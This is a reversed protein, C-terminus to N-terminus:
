NPIILDLFITRTVTGDSASIGLTYNGAPVSLNKLYLKAHETEDKLDIYKSSMNASIKFFGGAQDTSSSANLYVRQSDDSTSTKSVEIDVIRSSSDNGLVIRNMTSQIAFPPQISADVVGFKDTNLESFWLKNKNTPDISLNLAYTVYGGDPRSPIDYETLSNAVLDLLAIKNGEHENFWIKTGNDVARMWFPLTSVGYPSQPTPFRYITQKDINYKTIFNTEHETTWITNKSVFIDTPLYLSTKNAPPIDFEKVINTVCGNKSLIKFKVIKQNLIETIWLNNNDVFLGTPQTGNTLHFETVKYPSNTNRTKQIVGVTDGGLTTFWINNDRDLKMQFPSSRIGGLPYFKATNPDFRWMVKNGLQSFWIFGEKDQLMSWVMLPRESTLKVDSDPIPYSKIQNDSPDFKYITHINSGAIWVMGNRDAVIGNPQSNKELSYEKIYSNHAVLNKSTNADFMNAFSTDRFDLTTIIVIYFIAM